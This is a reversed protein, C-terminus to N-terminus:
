ASPYLELDVTFLPDDCNATLTQYIAPVRSWSMNAVYFDGYDVAGNSLNYDNGDKAMAKLDALDEEGVVYAKVHWIEDDYGFFQLVTGGGLPNLRSIINKNTGSKDQVYIRVSDLYWGM